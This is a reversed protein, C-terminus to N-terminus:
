LFLTKNSGRCRKSCRLRDAGSSLMWNAMSPNFAWKRLVPLFFCSIQGKQSKHNTPVPIEGLNM